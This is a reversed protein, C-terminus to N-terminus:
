GPSGLNVRLDAQGLWLPAHSRCVAHHPIRGSDTNLVTKFHQHDHGSVVRPHGRRDHLVSSISRCSNRSATRVCDKAFVNTIQYRDFGAVMLRVAAPKAAARFFQGNVRSLCWITVRAKLHAKTLMPTEVFSIFGNADLFKRTEMAVRLAADPQEQM